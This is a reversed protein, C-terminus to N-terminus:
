QARRLRLLPAGDEGLLTLRKGDLAYGTVSELATFLATEQEMVNPGCAMRTAAVAGFSLAPGDFLAEAFWNNCGGGGGARRDSAISLTLKTRGLVREGAIEEIMWVTDFLDTRVDLDGAAEPGSEPEEPGPVLSVLILVPTDAELDIMMPRTNRFWVRRHSIIEAVLGYRGDDDIAQSQVTFTFQLPVQGPRSIIASAGVLPESDRDDLDVLLMNLSADPPLAIRERYTVEGTIVFEQAGAVPAFVLALLAVALCRLLVHSMFRGGANLGASWLAGALPM